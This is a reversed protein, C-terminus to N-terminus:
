SSLPGNSYIESLELRLRDLYTNDLELIPMELHTDLLDIREQTWKPAASSVVDDLVDPLSLVLERFTSPRRRHAARLLAPTAPITAGLDIWVKWSGIGGRTLLVDVVEMEENVPKGATNGIVRAREPPPLERFLHLQRLSERSRTEVARVMRAGQAPIAGKAQIHVATNTNREVVLLDFEGGAWVRGELVEAGFADLTLRAEKLLAPELHKSVDHDFAERDLKNLAFPINRASLMLKLVDPSFMVLKDSLWWFPPFFGDAAANPRDEAHGVSFLRTIQDVQDPQLNTLGSILGFVLDSKLCPTRWELFERWAARDSRNAQLRRVPEAALALCVDAIAFCAARYAGFAGASVGAAREYGAETLIPAEVVAATAQDYRAKTLAIFRAVDHTAGTQHVRQPPVPLSPRAFPLGLESLVIDRCEFETVSPDRHHLVFGHTRDGRAVYYGRHVEPMIECFHGYQALLILEAILTPDDELPAHADEADTGMPELPCRLLLPTLYSFRSPLASGAPARASRDVKHGAAAGARKAIRRDHLLGDSVGWLGSLVTRLPLSPLRLSEVAEDLTREFDVLAKNKQPM